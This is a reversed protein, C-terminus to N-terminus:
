KSHSPKCFIQDTLLFDWRVNSWVFFSVKCFVLCQLSHIVMSRDCVMGYLFQQNSLTIYSSKSIVLSIVILLHKQVHIPSYRDCATCIRFICGKYQATGEIFLICPDLFWSSFTYTVESPSYKSRM